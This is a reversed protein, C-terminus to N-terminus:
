SRSTSSLRASRLARPRRCPRCSSRCFRSKRSALSRDPPGLIMREVHATGFAFSLAAVYGHIVDELALGDARTLAVLDGLYALARAPPRSGRGFLPLWNPHARLTTFFNGAIHEIRRQWSGTFERALNRAALRERMGDYLSDKDAFHGYLTMPPVGVASALSRITVAEFGQEDAIKLAADMIADATLPEKPKRKRASAPRSAAATGRPPATKVSPRKGAVTRM